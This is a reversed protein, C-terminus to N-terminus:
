EEKILAILPRCQTTLRALVCGIRRAPLGTKALWLSVIRVLPACTKASRNLLYALSLSAIAAPRAVDAHASRNLGFGLVFCDSWSQTEGRVRM